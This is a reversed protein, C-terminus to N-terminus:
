GICIGCKDCKNCKQSYPTIPPCGNTKDPKIPLGGGDDDGGGLIMFLANDEIPVVPTVEIKSLEKM